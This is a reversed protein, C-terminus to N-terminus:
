INWNRLYLHLELLLFHICLDKNDVIWEIGFGIQVTSLYLVTHKTEFLIKDMM